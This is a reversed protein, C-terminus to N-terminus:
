AADGLEEAGHPSIPLPPLRPPTDANNGSPDPRFQPLEDSNSLRKWILDAMIEYNNGQVVAVLVQNKYDGSGEMTIVSAQIIKNHIGARYVNSKEIVQAELGSNSFTSQRLMRRTLKEMNEDSEVVFSTVVTGSCDWTLAFPNDIVTECLIESDDGNHIPVKWDLLPGSLEIKSLRVSSEPEPIILNLIGPLAALLVFVLSIVAVQKGKADPKLRYDM